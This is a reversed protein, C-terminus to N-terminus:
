EEVWFMVDDIWLHRQGGGTQYDVWGITQTDFVPFIWQDNNENSVCGSGQQVVTLEEILTGNVWLKMTNTTGNFYWQYQTWEGEPIIFESHQWCDSRIGQTDYNAMLKKHHQGGFRVEASYDEDKVKGSGQIITWHVGDPSAKDVYLMMSGYYTNKAVPFMAAYKAFARNVYGEGSVFKLAKHGSFVRTTDVVVNGETKWDGIPTEGLIYSEFDDFLLVKKGNSYNCSALTILFLYMMYTYRIMNLITM